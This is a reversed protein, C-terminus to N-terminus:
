EPWVGASLATRVLQSLNSAEMKKMIKLRHVEVTRLSIGLEQAIMRNRRGLVVHDFVERERPSLRGILEQAEGTIAEQEEAQKRIALANRLAELLVEEKFPKEIFDVAGLKMAKVAVPVDGHGTIIIVPLHIKRIAIESLVELGDLGPMRIDLLVCGNWSPDIATVFSDGTAFIRATWGNHELLSKLSKRVAEDDDVVFVSQTDMM